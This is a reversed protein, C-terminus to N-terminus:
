IDSVESFHRLDTNVVMFNDWVEWRDYDCKVADELSKRARAINGM